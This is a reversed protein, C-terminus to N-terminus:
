LRPTGGAILPGSTLPTRGVHQAAAGEAGDAPSPNQDEVGVIISLPYHLSDTGNPTVFPKGRGLALM